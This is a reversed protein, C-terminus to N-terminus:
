ELRVPSRRPLINHDRRFRASNTAMGYELALRPICVVMFAVPVQSIPSTLIRPGSARPKRPTPILGPRRKSGLIASVENKVSSFLGLADRNERPNRIPFTRQGTLDGPPPFEGPKTSQSAEGSLKQHSKRSLLQRMIDNM